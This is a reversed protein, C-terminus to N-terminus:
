KALIHSFDRISSPLNYQGPGPNDNDLNKLKKDKAFSAVTSIKKNNYINGYRGPGPNDANINEHLIIKKSNNFIINNTSPKTLSFTSNYQGPGPKDEIKSHKTQKNFTFGKNSKCNNFSLGDKIVNYRGPGPNDSNLYLESRKSIPISYLSQKFKITNYNSSYAGPGPNNNDSKTTKPSTGIKHGISNPKNNYKSDVNYRGPGVNTNLESKNIYNCDKKSKNITYCPSSIRIISSESNYAGPGPNIQTYKNSVIISKNNRNVVSTSDLKQHSFSYSPANFKYKNSINYRGPGPSLFRYNDKSLKGIPSLLPNNSRKTKTFSFASSVNRNSFYNVSYQGPGPVKDNNKINHKGKISYSPPKQKTFDFSKM